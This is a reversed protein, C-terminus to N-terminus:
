SEKIISVYEKILEIAKIVDEKKIIRYKRNHWIHNAITLAECTYPLNTNWDKEKAFGIGITTFKPFGVIYQDKFLHVRYQWYDDNIPPTVMLMSGKDSQFTPTRDDQKRVELILDSM